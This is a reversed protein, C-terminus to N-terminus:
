APQTSDSELVGCATRPWRRATVARSLRRALRGRRPAREEADTEKTANGARTRPEPDGAAEAGRVGRRLWFGLLRYIFSNM